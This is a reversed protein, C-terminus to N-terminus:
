AAAARVPVLSQEILFDCSDNWGISELATCGGGSDLLDLGGLEAITKAQCPSSAGLNIM